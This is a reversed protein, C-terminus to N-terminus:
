EASHDPRTLCGTQPVMITMLFSDCGVLHAAGNGESLMEPRKKELTSFGESSIFLRKKIFLFPNTKQMWLFTQPSFATSTEKITL